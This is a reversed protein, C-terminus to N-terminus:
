LKVVKYSNPLMKVLLEFYGEEKYKLYKKRLWELYECWEILKTSTIEDLSDWASVDHEPEFDFCDFDIPTNIILEKEEPTFDRM